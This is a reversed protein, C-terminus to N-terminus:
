NRKELTFTRGEHDDIRIVLRDRMEVRMERIELKIERNGGEVKVMRDGLDVLLDEFVGVRASLRAQGNALSKVQDCIDEKFANFEARLTKVEERLQQIEGILFDIKQDTTMEIVGLRILRAM